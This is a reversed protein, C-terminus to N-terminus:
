LYNVLSLSRLTSFAAYSAELAIKESALRAAVETLDADEVAGIVGKLVLGRSTLADDARAIEGQRRGVGAQEARLARAAADLGDVFAALEDRRGADLPGDVTALGLDRFAQTLATGLRDAPIGIAVSRGDGLARTEVVQDNAFLGAVDPAAVADARTNATFPATDARSGAFLFRGGETANLATRLTAFTADLRADLGSAPQGGLAALVAARLESLHDSLRDLQTDQVALTGAAARLGAGQAEGRALLGRASLSRVGDAGLAAHDVARRGTALEAQTRALRAANRQMAQALGDQLSATGIRTLSM